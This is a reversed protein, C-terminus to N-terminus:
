RSRNDISVSLDTSMSQLELEKSLLLEYLNHGVAAHWSPVDVTDQHTGCPLLRCPECAFDHQQVTDAASANGLMCTSSQQM